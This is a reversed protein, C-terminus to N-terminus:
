NPKGPSEISGHVFVSAPDARLRDLLGEAIGREAAAKAAKDQGWAYGWPTLMIAAASFVIATTTALAHDAWTGRGVYVFLAGCNVGLALANAAM